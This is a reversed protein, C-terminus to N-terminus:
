TPIPASLILNLFTVKCDLLYMQTRSSPLDLTAMMSVEVLFAMRRGTATSLAMMFGTEFTTARRPRSGVCAGLVCRDVKM